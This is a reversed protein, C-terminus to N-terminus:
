VCVCVCVCVCACVCASQCQHCWDPNERWVVAAEAAKAAKSPKTAPVGPSAVKVASPAPADFLCDGEEPAHTAAPRKRKHRSPAASDGLEDCLLDLPEGRHADAKRKAKAKDRKTKAQGGTDGAETSTKAKLSSWVARSHSKVEAIHTTVGGKWFAVDPTSALGAKANAHVILGPQSVTTGEGGWEHGQLCHEKLVWGETKHGEQRYDKGAKKSTKKRGGARKGGSGRTSNTRLPATLVSKRLKAALGRTEDSVELDENIGLTRHLEQLAAPGAAFQPTHVQGHNKKDHKKKRNVLAERTNKLRDKHRIHGKLDTPNWEETWKLSTPFVTRVARLFKGCTSGTVRGVHADNALRDGLSSWQRGAGPAPATAVAVADRQKDTLETGVLVTTTIDVGGAFAKYESTPAVSPQAAAAAMPPKRIADQGHSAAHSKRASACDHAYEFLLHQPAAPQSREGKTLTSGTSEFSAKMSDLVSAMNTQQSAVILSEHTTLVRTRAKAKFKSNLSAQVCARVCLLCLLCVCVCM